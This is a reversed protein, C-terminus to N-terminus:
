ILMRDQEGAPIKLGVQGLFKEPTLGLGQLDAKIDAPLERVGDYFGPIAVSGDPRHMASLIDALVHIPNRAAGGFLGSHLDRDACIVRVEEYVLGRLSTTISPTDADWMGTDCVLALDRSLEAANDRVFGFLHKSGCEEEGEIMMTIDLPLKGTVAKFARCAEIFTMAQGKDDCAGRAVIIKRGGDLTEIRPEFPPTQWLDLPDVPQVDYHGYFLVRPANGNTKGNGSKGIVVPHGPTPRVSTEFGLSKLDAAVHDAAERCHVAYAPDPSISQIRLLTFLRDLSKDLDRDVRDLVAPLSESATM